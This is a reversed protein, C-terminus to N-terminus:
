LNGLAGLLARQLTEGYRPPNTSLRVRVARGHRQTYLDGVTLGVLYAKENMDGRFPSLRHKQVAEIQAEVKDSLQLGRKHLHVFVTVPDVLDGAIQKLSEGSQYRRVWEDVMSDTVKRVHDAPDRRAIGNKKLHYLITSEATKASAYKLGYVTAIKSASLKRELYLRRLDEAQPPWAPKSDQLSV